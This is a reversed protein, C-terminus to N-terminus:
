RSKKLNLDSCVLELRTCFLVLYFGLDARYEETQKKKEAHQQQNATKPKNEPALSTMYGM